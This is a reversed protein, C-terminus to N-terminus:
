SVNFVFFLNSINRKVFIKYYGKKKQEYFTYFLTAVRQSLFDERLSWFSGKTKESNKELM